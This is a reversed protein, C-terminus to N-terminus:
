RSAAPSGDAGRRRLGGTVELVRSCPVPREVGHQVGAARVTQEHHEDLGCVDAHVREAVHELVLGSPDAVRGGLVLAQDFEKGGSGVGVLDTPRETLM